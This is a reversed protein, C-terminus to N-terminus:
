FESFYLFCKIVLGHVSRAGRTWGGETESYFFIAWLVHRPIIM